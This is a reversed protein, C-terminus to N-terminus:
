EWLPLASFAERPQLYAPLCRGGDPCNSLQVLGFTDANQSYASGRAGPPEGLTCDAQPGPSPLVLRFGLKSAAQHELSGCFLRNVNGRGRYGDKWSKWSMGLHSGMLEQVATPAGGPQALSVALWQANLHYHGQNDADQPTIAAKRPAHNAKLVSLRASALSRRHLGHFFSRLQKLHHYRLHAQHTPSRADMPFGTSVAHGGRYLWRGLAGFLLIPNTIRAHTPCAPSCSCLICQM